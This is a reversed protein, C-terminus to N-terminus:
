ASSNASWPTPLPSIESRKMMQASVENTKSIGDPAQASV